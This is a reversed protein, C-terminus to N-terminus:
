SSNAQVQLQVQSRAKNVRFGCSRKRGEMLNPLSTLFGVLGKAVAGRLRGGRRTKGADARIGFFNRARVVREGALM